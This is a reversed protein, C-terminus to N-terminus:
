GCLQGKNTAPNGSSDWFGLTFAPPTKKESSKAFGRVECTDKAAQFPHTRGSARIQDGRLAKKLNAESPHTLYPVSQQAGEEATHM